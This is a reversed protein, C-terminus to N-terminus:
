QFPPRHPPHQGSDDGAEELHDKNVDAKLFQGRNNSLFNKGLYIFFFYITVKVYPQWEAYTPFHDSRMWFDLMAMLQASCSLIAGKIFDSFRVTWLGKPPLKTEPLGSM